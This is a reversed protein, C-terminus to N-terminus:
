NSSIKIEYNRLGILIKNPNYIYVSIEDDNKLGKPLQVVATCFGWQNTELIFNRLDSGKWFIEGKYQLAKGNRKIDVVIVSEQLTALKAQGVVILNYNKDEGSLGFDQWLFSNKCLYTEKSEEDIALKKRYCYPSNDAGISYLTSECNEGKFYDVEKPFSCKIIEKAELRCPFTSKSYSLFQGKHANIVNVMNKLAASGAENYSVKFNQFEAPSEYQDLYYQLYRSSNISTLHQVDKKSESWEDLHQAIKEFTGFRSEIRYDNWYFTTLALMGMLFVTQAVHAKTEPFFSIDAILFLLGIFGFVMVSYQFIPAKYISYFYAICFTLTFLIFGLIAISTFLRGKFKLARILVFALLMGWIIWTENFAYNLFTLIADKEPAGLWPTGGGGKTFQHLFVSIHPIYLAFAFLGSSLYPKIQKKSIFYFGLAFIAVAVVGAFYHTYACLSLSAAFGLYSIFSNKPNLKVLKSFFLLTWVVGLIGLAYPRALLSYTITFGLGAFLTAAIIGAHKHVWIKGIQYIGFTSLLGFAVFPLRVAIESTGFISTWVYLFFQTGAPHADNAKIGNELIEAWSDFQLRSIASLEDNTFTWNEINWLRMVAAFVLVAILLFNETKFLMHSRM